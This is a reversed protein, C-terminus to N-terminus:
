PVPICGSAQVVNERVAWFPQGNLTGRLHGSAPDYRLRYRSAADSMAVDLGSIKGLAALPRPRPPSAIGQAISEPNIFSRVSDGAQEIIWMAPTRNCQLQLTIQAVDPETGSGSAWVGNLDIPREATAPPVSQIEV